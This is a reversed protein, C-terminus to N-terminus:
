AKDKITGIFIPNRTDLVHPTTETMKLWYLDYVNFQWNNKLEDFSDIYDAHLETYWHKPTSVWPDFSVIAEHYFYHPADIDFGVSVVLDYVNVIREEAHIGYPKTTAGLSTTTSRHIFHFDKFLELLQTTVNNQFEYIRTCKFTGAGVPSKEYVNIMYTYSCYEVNNAHGRIEDMKGMLVAHHHIDEDTFDVALEGISTNNVDLDLADLEALLKKDEDSLHDEHFYAELDNFPKGGPTHEYNDM